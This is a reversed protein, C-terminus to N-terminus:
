SGLEPPAQSDEVRISAVMAEIDAEVNSGPETSDAGTADLGRVTLVVAIDQRHVILWYTDPLQPSDLRTSGSPGDSADVTGDAFWEGVREELRETSAWWLASFTRVTVDGSRFAPQAFAAAELDVEWGAPAAITALDLPFEEGQEVDRWSTASSNLATLGWAMALASAAVVVAAVLSARQTVARHPQM